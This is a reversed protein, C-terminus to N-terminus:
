DPADGFLRPNKAALRRLMRDALLSDGGRVYRYGSWGALAAGAANVMLDTMTDDLGSKQMNFGFGWDMLFEFIEWLTGLTVAFGFATLGFYVPPLVVRRTFHFTYVLLFGTLGLVVASLGHLMNDWWWFRYYFDRVEGLGFSAYLFLATILTLEVPLQVELGRELVAPLFTLVLVVGATFAVLWRQEVLAGVLAGLLALQLLVAVVFQLREPRTWGAWRAKFRIVAGDMGAM